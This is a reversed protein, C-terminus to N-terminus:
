HLKDLGQITKNKEKGKESTLVHYTHRANNMTSWYISLNVSCRYSNRIQRRVSYRHYNTTTSVFRAYSRNLFNEISSMMNKNSYHSFLTIAFQLIGRNPCTGPQM